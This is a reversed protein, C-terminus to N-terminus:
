IEEESNPVKLMRLCIHAHASSNREVTVSPTTWPTYMNSVGNDKPTVPRYLTFPPLNFTVGVKDCPRM